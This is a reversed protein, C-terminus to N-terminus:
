EEDESSYNGLGLGVSTPAKTPGDDTTKASRAADRSHEIDPQKSTTSTSAVTSETHELASQQDASSSVKRLKLGPDGGAENEKERRRKRKKMTWTNEGVPAGLGGAEDGTPEGRLADDALARHKRFAELQEATEQRM